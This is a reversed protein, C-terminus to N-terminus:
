ATQYARNRFLLEFLNGEHPQLWNIKVTPIPGLNLRDIHTCDTAQRRVAPDNSIVTGILTPGIADFMRESPCEVVSAFPFLYERNAIAPEPDPCHVVTPLIYGYRDHKQLRDGDRYKATMETASPSQKLDAEISNNIAEAMKLDTFAALPSEPDTVPKPM